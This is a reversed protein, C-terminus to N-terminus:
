FVHVGYVAGLDRESAGRRQRVVFMVEDLGDLVHTARRAFAWKQPARSLRPSYTLRWTMLPWMRSALARERVSNM